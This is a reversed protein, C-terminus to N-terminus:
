AAPSKVQDQKYKRQLIPQTTHTDKPPLSCSNTMTHMAAAFPLADM